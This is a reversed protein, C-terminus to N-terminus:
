GQDRVDAVRLSRAAGLTITGDPDWRYVGFVNMGWLARRATRARLLRDARLPM